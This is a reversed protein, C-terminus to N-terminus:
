FTGCGTGVVPGRLWGELDDSPGLRVLGCYITAFLREGARARTCPAARTRTCINPERLSTIKHCTFLNDLRLTVQDVRVYHLLDEILDNFRVAPEFDLLKADATGVAVSGIQPQPDFRRIAFIHLMQQRLQEYQAAR